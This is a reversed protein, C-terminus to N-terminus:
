RSELETWLGSWFRVTLGLGLRVRVGAKIRVELGDKTRTRSGVGAQIWDAVDESGSWHLVPCGTSKRPSSEARLGHTEGSTQPLFLGKISSTM